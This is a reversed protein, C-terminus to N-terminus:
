NKVFTVQQWRVLRGTGMVGGCTTGGPGNLPTEIRADLRSDNWAKIQMLGRGGPCQTLPGVQVLGQYVDIVGKKEKAQLVGLPEQQSGYVEIANGNLRFHFAQGAFADSQWTSALPDTAQPAPPSSPAPETPSPPPRVTDVPAPVISAMVPPSQSDSSDPPEALSRAVAHDVLENLNGGYSTFFNKIIGDRGIVVIVPFMTGVVYTGGVADQGLLNGESGSVRDCYDSQVAHQADYAATFTYGKAALYRGVSVESMQSDTVAIGWVVLGNTASGRDTALQQLHPLAWQGPTSWTNWFDLVVVKGRQSALTVAKGDLSDLSFPPAHRGVLRDGSGSGLGTLAQDVSNAVRADRRGLWGPNVARITGDKGVLITTPIRLVGYSQMTAHNSDDITSFTYKNQRLFEKLAQPTQSEAVTWVVLGEGAFHANAALEQIYSLSQRSLSDDPSWFHILVVKNNQRALNTPQGDITTLSIQPAAKGGPGKYAGLIEQIANDVSM